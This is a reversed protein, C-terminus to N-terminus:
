VRHKCYKEADILCGNMEISIETSFYRTKLQFILLKHYKPIKRLLTNQIMNTHIRFKERIRSNNLLHFREENSQGDSNNQKEKEDAKTKAGLSFLGDREIVFLMQFLSQVTVSAMAEEFGLDKGPYGVEVGAQFAM